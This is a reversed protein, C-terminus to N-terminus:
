TGGEQVRLLSLDHNPSRKRHREILKKVARLMNLVLLNMTDLVITTLPLCTFSNCEIAFLQLEVRGMKGSAFYFRLMSDDIVTLGCM